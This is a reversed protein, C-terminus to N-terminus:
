LFKLAHARAQFRRNLAGADTKANAGTVPTLTDLVVSEQPVPSMAKDAVAETGFVVAAIAPDNLKGEL